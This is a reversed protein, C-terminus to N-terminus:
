IAVKDPAAVPPKVEPFKMFEAPIQTVDDVILSPQNTKVSVSILASDVKLLDAAIMSSMLRDKIAIIRKQMAERRETLRDIEITVCLEDAELDNIVFGYNCIKEEVEASEGELSDAVCEADLDLALLQNKLAIREATLTYLSAM